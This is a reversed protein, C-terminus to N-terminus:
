RLRLSRCPWRGPHPAAKKKTDQDSAAVCLVGGVLITTLIVKTKM